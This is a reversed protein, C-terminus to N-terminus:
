QKMMGDISIRGPGLIMIVAFGIIFLFAHEGEGFIESKHAKVVAVAMAIIPPICAARTLLGLIVLASCGLEAFITLGLSTKAGLGMFNIFQQSYQQFHQLKDYGHVLLTLGMGIRLILMGLNFAGASYNVSTLKM